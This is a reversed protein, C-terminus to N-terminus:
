RGVRSALGANGDRGLELVAEAETLAQEFSLARGAAAAAQASNGLAERARDHAREYHDRAPLSFAAAEAELVAEAKAFLRASPQWAERAAALTAVDALGVAIAARNGEQRLRALMEGFWMAAEDLDGAACDILGLYRLPDIADAPMGARDYLAVADRLLIHARADDGQAGAIVGLLFRAHGLFDDRGADRLYVENDRYYAENAAFLEAAEGYRGQSVRVGVLLSRAFAYGHTDGSREWLPFSETLRETAHETEGAVTALMGSAMLAWARPRPAGADAPTELAQDLWRRGENLHGRYYWFFALAGALRLLTDHTGTELSWALAARQNDHEREIVDLLTPDTTAFRSEPHEFIRPHIGEALELFYRAHCNQTAPEEGSAVLRELGFERVTELM